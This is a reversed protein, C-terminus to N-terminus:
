LWSYRTEKTIHKTKVVKKKPGHPITCDVQKTKIKSHSTTLIATEVGYHAFKLKLTANLTENVGVLTYNGKISYKEEGEILSDDYEHFRFSDDKFFAISEDGTINLNILDNITLGQNLYPYSGEESITALVNKGKEIFYLITLDSMQAPAFDMSKFKCVLFAKKAGGQAFAPLCGALLFIILILNKNMHGGV